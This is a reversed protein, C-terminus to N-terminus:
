TSNDMGAHGVKKRLLAPGIALEDMESAYFTRIADAVTCVIPERINFSTNVIAPVGTLEEFAHILRHYRPNSDSNVTQPRSTGDAHVVAPIIAQKDVRVPFAFTMFPAPRGEEFYDDIVEELIAPALPRWPERGKIRNLRDRMGITRPDGLLSRAGLARPGIEMRGQFWAVTKGAALDSAVVQEIAEHREYVLGMRDLTRCIEDDSYGPGWYPHKMEFRPDHGMEQAVWMAAGLATGADNSVPSTYIRDVLGSCSVKGNAVCNLGVGGAICLDRLGTHETVRQVLRLVAAELRAQVGYAIDKYRQGIERTSGRHPPGFAQVLKESYTNGNNRGYFFYTPDLSYARQGELCLITELKRSIEDDPRGYAALGMTKGEQYEPKFGLYDTFGEYFWGLSHPLRYEDISKLNLGDARWLVSCKDEGNRDVTLVAARDFGSCYYVSAAHALHHPVFRVPPLPLDGWRIRLRQRVVSPHHFVIEAIAILVKFLHEDSPVGVIDSWRNYSLWRRLNTAIIRGRYMRADWAYAICDVDELSIGGERLCYNLAHDPLALEIDKLRLFREEEAMAVLQGDQLLCAAPNPGISFIGVINAPREKSQGELM